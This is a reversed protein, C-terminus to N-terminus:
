AGRGPGRTAVWVLVGVCGIVLALAGVLPWGVVLGCRRGSGGSGGGSGVVNGGGDHTRCSSHRRSDGGGAGAGSRKAPRARSAPATATADRGGAPEQASAEAEAMAAAAAAGWASAPASVRLPGRRPGRCAVLVAGRQDDYQVGMDDLLQIVAPRLRARGCGSHYGVGTILLLHGGRTASPRRGLGSGWLGVVVAVAEPVTLGHLDVQGRTRGEAAGAAVGAAAASLHAVVEATDPLPRGRAAAFRADQASPHVGCSLHHYLVPSPSTRPTDAHSSPPGAM